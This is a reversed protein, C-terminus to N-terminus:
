FFLKRKMIISDNNLTAGAIGKWGKTIERKAQAQKSRINQM